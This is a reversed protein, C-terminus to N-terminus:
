ANRVGFWQLWFNRSKETISRSLTLVDIVTQLTYVRQMWEVADMDGFELIREIIYRANKRIHINKLSTDWFLSRFREPVALTEKKDSIIKAVKPNTVSGIYKHIVKKGERKVLYAYEGKGITKIIISM